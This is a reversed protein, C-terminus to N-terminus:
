VYNSSGITYIVALEWHLPIRILLCEYFVFHELYVNLLQLYLMFRVTGCLEVVSLQTCKQHEGVSGDYYWFKPITTM